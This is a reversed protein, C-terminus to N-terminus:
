ECLCELGACDLPPGHQRHRAIDDRRPVASLRGRVADSVSAPMLTRGSCYRMLGYLRARRGRDGVGDRLVAWEASLAVGRSPVNYEKGFWRLAAAVNSKHNAVTKATVGVRAHHLQGVPLRISTWRAPVMEFPRDLWKGIQRLSCVWHRKTIKSLDASQEIADIAEVFSPELLTQKNPMLIM